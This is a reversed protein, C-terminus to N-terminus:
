RAEAAGEAVYPTVLATVCARDVDVKSRVYDRAPACESIQELLQEVRRELVISPRPPRAYARTAAEVAAPRDTTFSLELHLAGDFAFVAIRDHPELGQDLFRRLDIM